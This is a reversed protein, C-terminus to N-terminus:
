HSMDVEAPIGHRPRLNIGADIIVPANKRPAIRRCRQLLMPLILQIELMAFHEGICRRPGAGFPFYAEKHRAKVNEPLFRDPDFHLPDPWFAPHRHTTWASLLINSGKPIRYSPQGPLAPLDTDQFADREIIWAPPYLRMSEQIVRRTLELRPLDDATPPRDGLVTEIEERVQAEIDPLQMLQHLLCAMASSVTEHGAGLFTVLEDRVQRPSMREGTEPDRAQLLSTLIDHPLDKGLREREAILRLVIKDLRAIERKFKLHTPLPLWMPPKILQHDIRRFIFRLIANFRQMLEDSDERLDRSFLAFGIIRLTLEVAEQHLDLHLTGGKARRMWDDLMDKTCSQVLSGFSSIATKKFTPQAIRRQRKWLPNESTVLGKGIGLELEKYSVSKPHRNRKLVHAIHDPHNLLVMRFGPFPIPFFMVDRQASYHELCRLPNRRLRVASVLWNDVRPLPQVPKSETTTQTARARGGSVM